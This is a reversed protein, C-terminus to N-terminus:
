TQQEKLEQELVRLFEKRLGELQRSKFAKRTEDLVQVAELLLACLAQRHRCNAALCITNAAAPRGDLAMRVCDRHRDLQAQIAALSQELIERDTMTRERNGFVWYLAKM